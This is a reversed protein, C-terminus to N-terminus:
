FPTKDFDLVMGKDAIHVTKGTLEKIGTLFERANSNSPSLHILVINNVMSLDNATLVEKCTEYSLHSKITRDRQPQAILGAELNAELIDLSYNCELLINSLGAFKYKLYYTDTAFLVTGMEKHHILYGFPEEADHQVAFGQITFGGLRCSKFEELCTVLANGEINLARATGKSMYCPIRAGLVKSISKIHDGHEHSVLCGSIKTVEFDVAVQIDRYHVGCELLLCEDGNDFIYCNGASSSGLIKLQM